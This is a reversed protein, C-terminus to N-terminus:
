GVKRAPHGYVRRLVMKMRARLEELDFPKTIYDDAGAEIGNLKDSLDGLATVIIIPIHATVANERLSRCVQFGDVIPLRLDLLILEPKESIAKSLAEVGDKAGLIEYTDRFVDGIASLTAHDDEAVLVRLKHNGDLAPRTPRPPVGEGKAEAILEEMREAIQSLSLGKEVRANQIVQKRLLVDERDFLDKNGRKAAVKLLKQDKYKRIAVVSMGFLNAAEQIDVLGDKM